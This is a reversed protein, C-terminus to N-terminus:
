GARAARGPRSTAAGQNVAPCQRGSRPRRRCHRVARRRHARCGATPAPRGARAKAMPVATLMGYAGFRKTDIAPFASSPYRAAFTLAARQSRAAESRCAFARCRTAWATSTASWLTPTSSWRRVPLNAFKLCFITWVPLFLARTAPGPILPIAEARRRREAPQSGTITSFGGPGLGQGFESSGGSRAVPGETPQAVGFEAHGHAPPARDQADVM